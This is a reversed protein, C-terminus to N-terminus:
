TIVFASALGLRAMLIGSTILLQENKRRHSGEESYERVIIDLLDPATRKYEELSKPSPLPGSFSEASVLCIGSSALIEAFAAISEQDLPKGSVTETLARSDHMNDPPNQQM